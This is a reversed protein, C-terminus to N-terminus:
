TSRRRRGFRQRQQDARLLEVATGGPGDRADNREPRRARVCGPAVLTGFSETRQASWHPASSTTATARIPSSHGLPAVLPDNAFIALPAAVSDFHRTNVAEARTEYHRIGALHGALRRLTIAGYM